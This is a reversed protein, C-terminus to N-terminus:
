LLTRYKLLKMFSTASHQLVNCVWGVLKLMFGVVFNCHVPWFNWWLNGRHRLTGYLIAYAILELADIDQAFGLNDQLWDIWIYCIVMTYLSVCWPRWCQSCFQHQSSFLISHFSKIPCIICLTCSGTRQACKSAVWNAFSLASIICISFSIFHLLIQCFLNRMQPLASAIYVSVLPFFSEKVSEALYKSYVIILREKLRENIFHRLYYSFVVCRVCWLINHLLKLTSCIRHHGCYRKCSTFMHFGGAFQLLYCSKNWFRKARLSFHDLFNRQVWFQHLGISMRRVIFYTGGKAGEVNFVGQSSPSVKWNRGQKNPLWELVRAEERSFSLVM